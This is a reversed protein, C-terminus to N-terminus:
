GGLILGRGGWVHERTERVHERERQKERRGGERRREEIEMVTLHTSLLAQLSGSERSRM